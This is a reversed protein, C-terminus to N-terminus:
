ILGLLHIYLCLQLGILKIIIHRVLFITQFIQNQHNSWRRIRCTALSACQPSTHSLCVCACLSLCRSICTELFMVEKESLNDVIRLHSMSLYLTRMACVFIWPILFIDFSYVCSCYCSTLSPSLSLRVCLSLSQSV